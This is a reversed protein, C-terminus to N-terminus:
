RQILSYKNLLLSNQELNLVIIQVKVPMKVSTFTFAGSTIVAFLHLSFEASSNAYLPQSSLCFRYRKVKNIKILMQSSMPRVPRRYYKLTHGRLQHGCLKHHLEQKQRCKRCLEPSHRHCISKKITVALISPIQMDLCM